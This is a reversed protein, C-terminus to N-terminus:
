HFKPNANFSTQNLKVNRGQLLQMEKYKVNAEYLAKKNKRSFLILIKTKTSNCKKHLIKIEKRLEDRSNELSQLKALAQEYKLYDEYWSMDPIIYNNACKKCLLKSFNSYNRCRYIHLPRTASCCDYKTHLKMGKDTKYLTFSKGWDLISNKDRPLKDNGIDYLDPIQYKTKLDIIKISIEFIEEQNHQYKNIKENLLSIKYKPLHKEFILYLFVYYSYILAALISGLLGATILAKVTFLHEELCYFILMVGFSIGIFAYVGRNRYHVTNFFEYISSASIWFLFLMILISKLCIPEDSDVSSNGINRYPNDTPPEYPPTFPVYKSQSSASNGKGAYKGTHFHYTGSERDWHGGNVDTRGSHAFTIVSVCLYLFLLFVFIVRLITKKM